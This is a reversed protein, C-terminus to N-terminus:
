NSMYFYEYSSVRIKHDWSATVAIKRKKLLKICSILDSHRKINKIQRGNFVDWIRVARDAGVTWLHLSELDYDISTITDLHGILEKL